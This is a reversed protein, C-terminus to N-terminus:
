LHLNVRSAVCTRVVLNAPPAVIQHLFSMAPERLASRILIVDYSLVGASITRRRPCPGYLNAFAHLCQLPVLRVVVAGRVMSYVCTHHWRQVDRVPMRQLHSIRSCSSRARPSLPQLLRGTGGRKLVRPSYCSLACVYAAVHVHTDCNRECTCRHVTSPAAAQLPCSGSFCPTLKGCTM